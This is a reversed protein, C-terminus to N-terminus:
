SRAIFALAPAESKPAYASPGHTIAPDDSCGDAFDACFWQFVQSLHVVDAKTDISFRRPDELFRRTQDDFPLDLRKGAYPEYRDPECGMSACNIAMHIRPETLEGILKDMEIQDIMLNTGIVQFQLKTWVGAIDMTSNVPENKLV